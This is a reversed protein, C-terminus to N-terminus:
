DIGLIRRRRVELATPYAELMARFYRELTEVVAQENSASVPSSLAALFNDNTLTAIQL